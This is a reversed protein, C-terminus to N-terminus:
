RQWRAILTRHAIRPGGDTRVLRDHYEGGVIFPPEGARLHYALFYCSSADGAVSVNSIFHQVADYRSLARRIYATIADIGERV